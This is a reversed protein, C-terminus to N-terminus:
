YKSVKCSKLIPKIRWLYLSVQYKTFFRQIRTAECAASHILVKSWLLNSFVLFIEFDRFRTSAFGLEETGRGSVFSQYYHDPFASLCINVNEPGALNQRM